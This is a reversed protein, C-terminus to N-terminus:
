ELGCREKCTASRWTAATASLPLSIRATTVAAVWPEARCAQGGAADERQNPKGFGCGDGSTIGCRIFNGPTYLLFEDALPHGIDRRAQHTSKRNVTRKGASGRIPAGAGVAPDTAQHGTQADKRKPENARKQGVKGGGKQASDDNGGDQIEEFEFVEPLKSLVRFRLSIHGPKGKPRTENESRSNINRNEQPDADGHRMMESTFLSEHNVTPKVIARNM